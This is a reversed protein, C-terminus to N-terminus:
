TPFDAGVAAELQAVATFYATLDQIYEANTAIFTRQADLYDMLPAAGADFQLKTIDRAKRARELLGSEMREVLRRSTVFTSFATEVESVVQAELKGLQLAQSTSDAEARRIEGQQQYFFPIPASLGVGLTPPQIASQGTGTQTYQVSLTIDPCRSRARASM